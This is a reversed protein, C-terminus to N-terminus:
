RAASMNLNKKVPYNDGCVIKMTRSYSSFAKRNSIEKTM